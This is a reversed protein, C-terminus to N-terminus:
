DTAAATKAVALEDGLLREMEEGAMPRGFYYGQGIDCPPRRWRCPLWIAWTPWRRSRSRAAWCRRM